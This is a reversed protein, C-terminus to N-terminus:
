LGHACKKRKCSLWPFFLFPPLFLRVFPSDDDKQFPFFGGLFCHSPDSSKLACSSFVFFFPGLPVFRGRESSLFLLIPSLSCLSM